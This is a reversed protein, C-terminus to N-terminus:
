KGGAGTRRLTATVRAMFLRPDLPKGLYDAAGHELLAAEVAPAATSTLVVVALTAGAPDARLRRVLERGDMGPMELDVVALRVEPNSALCALAQAGGPAELVPFGGRELVARALLRSTADDDVVLIPCRAPVLVQTGPSAWGASPRRSVADLAADLWGPPAVVLAPTRGTVRRLDAETLLDVPNATAVRITTGDEDLPIIRREHALAQPVLRLAATTPHLPEPGSLGFASAVRKALNEQSIGLSRATGEWAEELTGAGNPELGVAAPLWAHAAAAAAAEKGAIGRLIQVAGELIRAMGEAPADELLAGAETVEGFGYSGGSGRLAHGVLRVRARAEADGGAVGPRLAELEEVRRRMANRYWAQLSERDIRPVDPGQLTYPVPAGLANRSRRQVMRRNDGSRWGRVTARRLVGAGRFGWGGLAGHSWGDSGRHEKKGEGQGESRRRRRGLGGRVILLNPAQGLM